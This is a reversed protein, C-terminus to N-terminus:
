LGKLLGTSGRNWKDRNSLTSSGLRAFSRSLGFLLPLPSCLLFHHYVLSDHVFFAESKNDKQYVSM